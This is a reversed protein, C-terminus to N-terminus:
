TARGLSTLRRAPAVTARRENLPRIMIGLLREAPICGIARSDYSRAANDGLVVFMDRPM